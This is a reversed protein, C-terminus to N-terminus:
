EYSSLPCEGVEHEHLVVHGMDPDRPYAVCLCKGKKCEGELLFHQLSRYIEGAKISLHSSFHFCAHYKTEWTTYTYYQLSNINECGRDEAYADESGLLVEIPYVIAMRIVEKLLGKQLNHRERGV